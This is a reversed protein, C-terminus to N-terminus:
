LQAIILFGLSSGDVIHGDKKSKYEILTIRVGWLFKRSQIVDLELLAGLADEYSEQNTAAYGSGKLKPSFHYTAGIGVRMASMRHFLLGNLPYRVWSIETNSDYKADSKVGFTLQTEWQPTLHYLRGVDFSFRQGAKMTDKDGNEYQHYILEDGGFHIGLEIISDARAGSVMFLYVILAFVYPSRFLHKSM